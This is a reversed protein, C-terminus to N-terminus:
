EKPSIKKAYERVATEMGSGTGTKDGTLPPLDGKLKTLAPRSKIPYASDYSVVDGLPRQENGLVIEYTLAPVTKYPLYKEIPSKGPQWEAVFGALVKPKLISKLISFEM